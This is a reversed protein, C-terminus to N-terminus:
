LATLNDGGKSEVVSNARSVLKYITFTCLKVTYIIFYTNLIFYFTKCFEGILIHKRFISKYSYQTM